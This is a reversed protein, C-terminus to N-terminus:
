SLYTSMLELGGHQTIYLDVCASVWIVYCGDVVRVSYEVHVYIM